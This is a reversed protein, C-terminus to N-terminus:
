GVKSAKWAVVQSNHLLLQYLGCETEEQTDFRVIHKTRHQKVYTAARPGLTTMHYLPQGGKLFDKVRVAQEAVVTGDMGTANWMLSGREGAWQLIAPQWWSGAPSLAFVEEVQKFQDARQATSRSRREQSFPLQNPVGGNQHLFINLLESDLLLGSKAPGATLQVGNLLPFRVLCLADGLMARRNIGSPELNSRKCAEVAWREVALYIDHEDAALASRQLIMKLTDQAIATFQETQVIVDCHREVLRLCKEVIDDANWQVARELTVLCEGINMRTEVFELCVTALQPLDYKDACRLTPVVNDATLNEVTDTYLYSLMNAFADPMCDPIDVQPGSEAMSGHFMAYFVPSRISLIYKHAKFLKAEGFDGGVSFQVDSLDGSVLTEKTYIQLGSDPDPRKRKRSISSNPDVSAM